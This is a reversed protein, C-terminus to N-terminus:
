TSLIKGDLTLDPQFFLEINVSETDVHIQGIQEEVTVVRSRDVIWNKIRKALPWLVYANFIGKM